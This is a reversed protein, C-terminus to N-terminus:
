SKFKWGVRLEAFTLQWTNFGIMENLSFSINLGSCTLYNIGFPIQLFGDGYNSGFLLGTFPTLKNESYTSNMHFRSGASFYIGYSLDSTGANVELDIQPIIFYDVTTLFMGGNGSLELAIGANIGFPKNKRPNQNGMLDVIGNKYELRSIRNAKISIIPGDLYDNMKYKVLKNTQEIIKVNLQQKDKTNIIDQGFGYQFVFTLFLITLIKNM